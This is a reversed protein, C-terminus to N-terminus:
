KGLREKLEETLPPVIEWLDGVVGFRALKFIPAEPDKNIAVITKSTRMGALHQIAGSIGCAIYLDPSVVKGTQGVQHSYSIYGADVAARSAGLAADLVKALDGLMEFGKKARWVEAEEDSGIEPPPDLRPNNAVGRGGSVIVAADALSVGAETEKYGVVEALPEIGEVSVEVIEGSRSPDAEPMAFSRSRLTFIQPRREPITVKSFLKGAYIPRTAVVKGEQVELAVVDPAVGTEMDVAVMAALERTRGTNPLLFIGADAQRLAQVAASAYPEPLFDKLAPSQVQLAKDAGYAIAQQAIEGVAEGIVLAQVQGDLQGALTRAAGIAEWSGMPVDGDTHDIYVVITEAM